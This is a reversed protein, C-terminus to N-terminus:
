SYPFTSSENGEGKVRVFSKFFVLYWAWTPRFDATVCFYGYCKRLVRQLPRSLFLKFMILYQFFNPDLGLELGPSAWFWCSELLFESACAPRGGSIRTGSVEEGNDFVCWCSEQDQSCQVPSFLGGDGECQPIYGKGAERLSTKSKLMNCFSPGQFLSIWQLFQLCCVSWRCIHVISIYLITRFVKMATSEAQTILLFCHLSWSIM